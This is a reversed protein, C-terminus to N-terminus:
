ILTRTSKTPLKAPLCRCGSMKTLRPRAWGIPRIAALCGGTKRHKGSAPTTANERIAGVDKEFALDQKNGFLFLSSVPASPYPAGIVASYVMRLSSGLDLKGAQKWGAATMARVLEDKSGIVALNVPDGLMGDPAQTRGIFYAPLFVKSLWRYVHPLIVYAVLLWIM